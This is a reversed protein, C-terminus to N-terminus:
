KKDVFSNKHNSPVLISFFAFKIIICDYKTDYLGSFLYQAAKLKNITESDVTSSRQLLTRIM